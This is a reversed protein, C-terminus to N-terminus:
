RDLPARIRFVADGDAGNAELTAGISDALARAALLGVVRSYRGDARGKLRQQGDLTFVEDRLDEGVARGGDHVEVVAADGEARLTVRVSSAPAHSLANRLLLEVLRTLAGGGARVYVAEEPLEAAAAGGLRSVAARVAERADSPAGDMATNGGIWRGVWGLQELGRMLDGLATEIDELAEAADEDDGPGVEKVFSVNASVTAVPNRLDHVVLAILEDISAKLREESM